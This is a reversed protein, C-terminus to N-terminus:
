KKIQFFYSIFISYSVLMILASFTFYIKNSTNWNHCGSGVQREKQVRQDTLWPHALAEECSLRESPDVCMLKRVFDKATDSIHGWSHPHFEYRGKLILDILHSDSEISDEPVDKPFFPPYGSLLIYAIVGISWVDNVSDIDKDGLVEPAMYGPTGCVPSDEPAEQVWESLGFDAVMIKSDESDDYYLLNELKLDRHVIGQKHIYDVACLLQVMLKATTDEDFSGREVLRDFVEGGKALEMVFCVSEDEDFVENLHVIHPHDLSAMIQIEKEILWTLDEEAEVM